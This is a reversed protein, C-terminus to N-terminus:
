PSVIRFFRATNGSGIPNTVSFRGQSDCLNTAIRIWQSPSTPYNTSMLLYCTSGPICGSSNVILNAGKFTITGLCPRALTTIRAGAWDAHDQNYFNAIGNSAVLSLTQRGTVDVDITQTASSSGMIGSDYLKVNDAWVQFIVSAVNCCADDDVGIDSHFRTAQGGLLYDIHSYAHAGVGKPYIVGHLSIPTGGTDKDAQIPYPTVTSALWALDSLYNTGPVPLAAHEGWVIKLLQVSQPALTATYSNTFDGVYAHAWLDRVDAEGAPLGLNAWTATITANSSGRNLLAVARAHINTSIPKSWIQASGNTLVCVGQIGAPDQDIAIAERNTMIQVSINDMTCALLPAAAMCWMSFNVMFQSAPLFNCELVDPDNWHGPGAYAATQTVYDLHYFVNALTHTNDGTGRWSNLVNTMWTEFPGISSTFVIPRGTNLLASSMLQLQPLENTLPDPDSCSEYKVYDVGWSAYTNADQVVHGYSGPLGACTTPGWVTYLGFKLGRSHVYDALAKMGSPFKNTDAVIVGNTDRYGAWGDDLCLYQYGAAKMGNTAMSDAFGKVNTENISTSISYWSNWGMPPTLAVGNTLAQAVSACFVASLLLFNRIVLSRM